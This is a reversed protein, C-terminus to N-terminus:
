RQPWTLDNVHLLPIFVSSAYVFIYKLYHRERPQKQKKINIQNNTQVTAHCLITLTTFNRYALLLTIFANIQRNNCKCAARQTKPNEYLLYQM